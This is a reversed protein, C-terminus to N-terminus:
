FIAYLISVIDQYDYYVLSLIIDIRGILDLNGVLFSTQSQDFWGLLEDGRARSM